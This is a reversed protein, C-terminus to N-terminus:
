QVFRDTIDPADSWLRELAYFERTEDLFIHIVMEGGFDLLIWRGHRLGEAHLPRLGVNRLQKIVNDAIAQVQRENTGSCILFYSTFDSITDLDLVLLREAKRELAAQVVLQINAESDVVKSASETSAAETSAAEAPNAEPAAAATARAELNDTSTM